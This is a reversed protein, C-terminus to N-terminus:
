KSDKTLFIENKNNSKQKLLMSSDKIIIIKRTALMM